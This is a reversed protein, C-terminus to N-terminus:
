GSAQLAAPRGAAKDAAETLEASVILRERASYEPNCTTMTLLRRTPTADREGPVPFTVEVANPLVVQSGTIRYTFWGDRTELVVLDGPTLEDWRNFPAGYTTRHGSLVVNGVEGPLATGPIHGPGGQKLDEVSVGEVVSKPEYGELAPVHLRAFAGGLVPVLAPVPAPAPVEPAPEGEASAAVPQRPVESWSRALEDGLRDQARAAVVGTVQLEYVVFLLVIVGLTILTQGVGRLGTRVLEAGRSM